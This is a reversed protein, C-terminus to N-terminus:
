NIETCCWKKNDFILCLKGKPYSALLDNANVNICKLITQCISQHTVLVINKNTHYYLKFIYQFFPIVRNALLTLDEPYQINNYKLISKYKNNCNFHKAIYEPLITGVANKAIIDPHHIESLAYEVNIPINKTKAYPHITQLTRIFPSSIIFNINHKELIISLSVANKLGTYSLPVFFSCDIPRQEHRLIYLRM